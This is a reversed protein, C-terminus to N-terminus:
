VARVLDVSLTYKTFKESFKKTVGQVKILSGGPGETEETLRCIKIDPFKGEESINFSDEKEICIYKQIGPFYLKFKLLPQPVSSFINIRKKM